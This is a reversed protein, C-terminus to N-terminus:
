SKIVLHFSRVFFTMIRAHIINLFYMTLIKQVSYTNSLFPNNLPIKEHTFFYIWLEVNRTLVIFRVYNKCILRLLYSM